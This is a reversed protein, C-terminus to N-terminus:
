SAAHLQTHVARVDGADNEFGVLAAAGGERGVLVHLLQPLPGRADRSQQHAVFHLGAEAAGAREPAELM